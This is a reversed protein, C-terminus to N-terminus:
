YEISLESQDNGNKLEKPKSEKALEKEAWKEVNTKPKIQEGKDLALAVKQTNALFTTFDYTKTEFWKDEMQFFVQILLCAREIDGYGKAFNKLQGTLKRDKLDPRVKFKLEYAKVYAGIFKKVKDSSTFSEDGRLTENKEKKLSTSTSTSPNSRPEIETLPISVGLNVVPNNEKRPRGGKKGNDRCTTLWEIRGFTGKIRILEGKKEGLGIAKECIIHSFNKIQAIEDIEDHTLEYKLLQTCHEWIHAMRGLADFKSKRITRALLRFRLDNFAITEINIAL